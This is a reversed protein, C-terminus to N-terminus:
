NTTEVRRYYLQVPTFGVECKYLASRIKAPTIGPDIKTDSCRIWKSSNQAKVYAIYHGLNVTAGHHAVVAFLDYKASCDFGEAAEGGVLKAIQAREQPELAYQNLNLGELPFALHNLLKVSSTQDTRQIGIRLLPPLRVIQRRLIKGRSGCKDCDSEVHLDDFHEKVLEDLTGNDHYPSVSFQYREAEEAIFNRTGCAKCTLTQLEMLYWHRSIVNHNGRNVWRNAVFGVPQTTDLSSLTNMTLKIRTEVELQGFIFTIFEDSDHQNSDGFRVMKGNGISYGTHITRLYHMLTSAKMNAFSRQSLWQFLNGLIKCMLQSHSPDSPPVHPRYKTPWQADLFEDVFGRCALLAQISANAYCWNHPNILGTPYANLQQLNPAASAAMAHSGPLPHEDVSQLGSYRTRAVSPKPRVPPTPTMDKLFEEDGVVPGRDKSVMSEPERLSPFRRMFDDRSKTYDFDGTEDRGIMAEITDVEDPKLARNKLRQRTSVSTSTARRLISETKSTQLSHKGMEGVWADLGGVLLKPTHNLKPFSYLVLAQRLNFLITEQVNSTIRQPVTQSDQDYFVILDMEDRRELAAKENTPALIMSDVIENASINRRSLITPDLCITNQSMIHGEDFLQRDRVDILLIKTNALTSADEMCRVLEKVTISEGKPIRINSTSFAQPDGYTHAAVFQEGNSPRFVNEMSTRTPTSVLSNTRSFIGRPMSSPLNAAESTVTGRAPSYIADPIKPMTPLPMARPGILRSPPPPSAGNHPEQFNRLKAFRTVLDPSTTDSTPRVSNGHLAQPKPHVVPKVKRGTSASENLQSETRSSNGNKFASSSEVDMHDSHVAGGDQVPEQWPRDSPVSPLDLRPNKSSNTILNQPRVGSRMNDEKILKKIRVYADDNNSIKIKLAHYLRNLDGRDSKLAPYDKHKPVKDVAISSAKIYEQLALDPRGFDHYTIAQRMHADGAELVKRLPTYPDLDVSVSLVDDIHRFPAKAPNANGGHAAAGVSHYPKSTMTSSSPAIATGAYPAPSM